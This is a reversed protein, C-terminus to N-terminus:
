TKSKIRNLREQIEKTNLLVGTKQDPGAPKQTADMKGTNFNYIPASSFDNQKAENFAAQLAAKNADSVAAALTRDVTTFAGSFGFAASAKLADLVDQSILNNPDGPDPTTAPPTETKPPTYGGGGGKGKAMLAADEKSIGARALLDDSPTGGNAVINAVYSAALQRDADNVSQAFQREWRENELEQQEQALRRNEYDAIQSSYINDAANAKDRNLNATVSSLFSSRQMGRGVADRITQAVAKDFSKNSEDRRVGYTYNLSDWLADKPTMEDVDKQTRAVTTAM